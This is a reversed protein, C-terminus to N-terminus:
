RGLIRGAIEASPQLADLLDEGGHQWLRMPQDAGAPVPADNRVAGQIAGSAILMQEAELGLLFDILKKGNDPNPGGAVLAVTHPIAYAGLNEQDPYIMAVDDGRQLAVMVDDTDTLGFLYEGRVVADRVTSNGSLLAVQNAKLSNLFETYTEKGWDAYLAAFHTSTTGFFPKAIAVKGRWRSDALDSLRQPLEGSKKLDSGVVFVRYRAGFGTWYGEPDKFQHPINGAASSIYPTLVGANKLNLTRLNESSWFVDAQPRNKEAVLRRELGVTKSAEVDYAAKVRIGTQQEFRKLVPESFEQDVSTYVVVEPNKVKQCATLVVVSCILTFLIGRFIM